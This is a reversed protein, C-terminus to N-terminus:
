TIESTVQSITVLNKAV